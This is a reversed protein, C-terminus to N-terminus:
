YFTHYVRVLETYLLAWTRALEKFLKQRTLKKRPHPDSACTAEDFDIWAVRGSPLVLINQRRIDGHLVYAQHIQCLSRLAAEAIDPTITAISLVQADPIYELLLAKPPRRDTLISPSDERGGHVPSDMDAPLACVREM